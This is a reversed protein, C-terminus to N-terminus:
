SVQTKIVRLHNKDGKPLIFDLLNYCSMDTKDLGFVRSTKKNYTSFGHQIIKNYALYILLGMWAVKIGQLLVARAL